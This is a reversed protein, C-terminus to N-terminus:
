RRGPWFDLPDPQGAFAAHDVDFGQLFGRCRQWARCDCGWVSHPGDQLSWWSWEAGRVHLGLLELGLWPSDSADGVSREQGRWGSWCIGETGGRGSQEERWRQPVRRHIRLDTSVNQILTTKLTQAALFWGCCCVRNWIKSRSVITTLRWKRISCRRSKPRSLPHNISTRSHISWLFQCTELRSM